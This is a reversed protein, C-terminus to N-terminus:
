KWILWATITGIAIETARQGVMKQKSDPVFLIDNAVLTADQAKGKIIKSLNIPVETKSGDQNTRLIRAAKRASTPTFGQAMAIAQLVTMTPRDELVFGGPQKVAGTVYVVEAKSVSIIDSPKMEINLGEDRTYLLRNLDIEIQDPGRIHMGDVPQLDGFGSKRTVLVTRGASSSGRKGFGGAMSLVEILTRRGTLPFLGPREVAGIVSVPKAKFENVFVTVQPDQLYNEGWKDALEKRLQEVTLDAAQVRGILPLSITGDNAVRVTKTLEPLNFVEIGIVDEPGLVYNPDVLPGSSRDSNRQANGATTDTNTTSGQIRQADHSAPEDQSGQAELQPSTLLFVSVLFVALGWSTRRFTGKMEAGSHSAETGAGQPPCALLSIGVQSKFSCALM